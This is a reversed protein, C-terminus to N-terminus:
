YRLTSVCINSMPTRITFPFRHSAFDSGRTPTYPCVHSGEDGKGSRKWNGKFSWWVVVGIGSKDV